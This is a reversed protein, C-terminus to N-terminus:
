RMQIHRLNELYANLTPYHVLVAGRVTGPRKIRVLMGKVTESLDIMGSRSLGTVPCREGARPLRGFELPTQLKKEISVTPVVGDGKDKPLHNFRGQRDKMIRTKDGDHFVILDAEAFDRMTGRIDKWGIMHLPKNKSKPLLNERTLKM